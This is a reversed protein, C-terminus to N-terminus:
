AKRRKFGLLGMLGSGLLYAAAPIPTPTATSVPPPAVATTGIGDLFAYGGQGGYGCDTALVSITLSDGVAFSSLDLSYQWTKYYLDSGGYNGAVAWGATAADSANASFSDIVLGNKEGCYCFVTSCCSSSGPWSRPVGIDIIVM